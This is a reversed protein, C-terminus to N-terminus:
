VESSLATNYQLADEKDKWDSALVVTMVDDDVVALM